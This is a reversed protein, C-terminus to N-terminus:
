IYFAITKFLLHISVVIVSIKPTKMTEKDAGFKLLVKVCNMRQLGFAFQLPNHGHRDKINLHAGHHILYYLVSAKGCYISSLVTSKTTHDFGNVEAGHQILCAVCKLNGVVCALQLPKSYSPHKINPSVGCKLYLEVCRVNGRECAKLFLETHDIKQEIVPLNAEYELLLALCKYYGRETTLKMPPVTINGGPTSAIYIDSKYTFLLLKVWEVNNQECALYLLTKNYEDVHNIDAHYEMLLEVCKSHNNLYALRLPTPYKLMEGPRQYDPTAGYQLLLQLIEHYGNNAANRLAYSTVEQNLKNKIIDPHVGHELLLKVCDISNNSVAVGLPISIEFSHVCSAYHLAGYELLLSVCKTHNRECAFYLATKGSSDEFDPDAGNKLLVLVAASRNCVCSLILAKSKITPTFIENNDFNDYIRGYQLLLSLAAYNTELVMPDYNPHNIHINQSNAGGEHLLIDAFYFNNNYLDVFLPTM